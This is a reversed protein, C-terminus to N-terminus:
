EALIEALVALTAQQTKTNVQGLRKGLWVEFRKVEM